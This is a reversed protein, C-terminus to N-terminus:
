SVLGSYETVTLTVSLLSEWPLASEVTSSMTMTVMLTVFRSSGPERVTFGAGTAPMAEVASTVSGSPVTAFTVEQVQSTASLWSATM